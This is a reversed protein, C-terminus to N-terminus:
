AREASMAELVPGLEGAGTVVADAGGLGEAGHPGTAVAVCRCGDAQACAVDRATDGIVVTREPPWPHTDSGARRRAVGPLMTRDESDSGFAGQGGPFFGGIGARRLKMRAVPELNGTVLSLRVDDRPALGELLERMGPAVTTTLDQTETEAYRRAVAIRLEPLGADIRSAPVGTGVLILRAIEPDTRGATEVRVGDPDIGYVERVGALLAARHDEAARLLLTGDIDFLLLLASM